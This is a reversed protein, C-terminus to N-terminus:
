EKSSHPLPFLLPHPCRSQRPKGAHHLAHSSSLPAGQAWAM